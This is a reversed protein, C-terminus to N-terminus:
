SHAEQSPIMSSRGGYRRMADLDRRKSGRPNGQPVRRVPNHPATQQGAPQIPAQAVPRVSPTSHSRSSSVSPAEFEGLSATPDALNFLIYTNTYISDDRMFQVPIQAGLELSAIDNFIAMREATSVPAIDLIKIIIDGPVFGCAFGISTPKMKGIRIGLPKGAQSATALDVMDVLDALSNIRSAFATPNVLYTRESQQQIVDFWSTDQMNSTDEKAEEPYMYITEQQGNSRIVTIKRPNIRLIYADLVKEGVRFSETKGTNTNVLSVQSKAENSSAIIGTIKLPLPKLFQITPKPKSVLAIPRPPTPIGPLTDVPKVSVIAPRYTSFLDHEEYILSLDKPKVEKRTDIEPLATVKISASKPRVFLTRMSYMIFILLVMLVIALISNIIWLPSKTSVM